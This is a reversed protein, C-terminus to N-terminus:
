LLQRSCDSSIGVTLMVKQTQACGGALQAAPLLVGPGAELRGELLQLSHTHPEYSLLAIKSLLWSCGLCLESDTGRLRGWSSGALPTWALHLPASGGKSKVASQNNAPLFIHTRERAGVLAPVACQILTPTGVARTPAQDSCHHTTGLAWASPERTWTDRGQPGQVSPRHLILSCMVMQAVLLLFCGTM